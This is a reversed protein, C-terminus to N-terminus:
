KEILVVRGDSSWDDGLWYASRITGAGDSCVFPISWRGNSNRILSGVCYNNKGNRLKQPTKTPNEIIWKWYEIGPIHYTAGYTDVVYQAVEHVPSYNVTSLDPIFIKSELINEFDLNQTDPNLTYEGFKTADIEDRLVNYDQIKPDILIPKQEVRSKEEDDYWFEFTVQLFSQYKQKLVDLNLNSEVAGIVGELDGIEKEIEEKLRKAEAFDGAKAGENVAQELKNQLELLKALREQKQKEQEEPKLKQFDQIEQKTLNVEQELAKLNAEPQLEPTKM